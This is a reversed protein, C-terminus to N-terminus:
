GQKTADRVIRAKERVWERDKESQRKDHQKKGKALGIEVKIFGNKLHMNVPVVTYGAREVKM